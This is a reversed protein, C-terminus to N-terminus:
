ALMIAAYDANKASDSAPMIVFGMPMPRSDWAAGASTQHRHDHRAAM